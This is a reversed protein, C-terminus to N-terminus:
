WPIAATLSAHETTVIRHNLLFREGNRSVAYQTSWVNLDNLRLGTEFLPQLDSPEPGGDPRVPLGMLTGESTLYFLERGDARWCPNWGGHRSVQWKREGSPFDVVYVEFRGTENSTYALWRPADTSGSRSFRAGCEVFSHQLFPRLQGSTNSGELSLIWTHMSRYDPWQSGFAIFRGDSSWDTLFKPGPSELVCIPPGGRLGRRLLRMLRDDGRSFLIESSDHSWLPNFEPEASDPETFRYECADRQVDVIWITPLMTDPDDHRQVALYREDPSLSFSAFPSCYDNAGGVTAVLKGIRDFWAFQRPDSAGGAYVLVDNDSVSFGAQYWRRYRIREAIVTREAGLELNQSNFPQAILARDHV